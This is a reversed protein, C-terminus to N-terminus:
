WPYVYKIVVRAKTDIGLPDGLVLYFNRKDEGRKRVVASINTHSETDKFGYIRFIIWFDRGLDYSISGWMQQTASWGGEEEVWRKEMNLSINLRDNLLQRGIWGSAFKYPLNTRIGEGYGLGISYRKEPAGLGISFSTFNDRYPDYFTINRNFNISIDGRLGISLSFGKSETRLGGTWYSGRNYFLRIRYSEWWKAGRPAIDRYFIGLNGRKIGTEGVLQLDPYFDPSVGSYSCFFGGREGLRKWFRGEYSFGKSGPEMYTTGYNFNFNYESSGFGSGVGILLNKYGKEVRSQITAGIYSQYTPNHSFNFVTDNRFPDLRTCNLFGIQNKGAQGFAKLGWDFKDIRRSYFSGFYESGETFFPRTDQLWTETYSIDITQYVAEIDSYDPYLTLAYKFDPTIFKHADLGMHWNTDAGF